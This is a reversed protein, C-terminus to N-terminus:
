FLVLQAFRFPSKAFVVRSGSSLRAVLRASELRSLGRRIQTGLSFFLIIRWSKVLRFFFFFLFFSFFFSLFFFFYHSFYQFLFFFFRDWRFFSRLSTCIITSIPQYPNSPGWFAKSPRPPGRLIESLRQFGWNHSWPTQFGDPRNSLLSLPASLAEDPRPSPHFLRSFIM